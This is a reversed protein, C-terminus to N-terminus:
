SVRVETRLDRNAGFSMREDLIQMYLTTLWDIKRPWMYVNRVREHANIGMQIRLEHNKALLEIAEAIAASYQDPDNIPIRIGCDTMVVEAPGGRDAVICPLGYSMAEIVVNGSPERFSPFVFIDAQEYFRNVDQRAIKGHFQICDMLGLRKAENECHLRDPGDGVIDMRWKLDTPLQGLARIADRLGKTRIIRGVYLLNLPGSLKRRRVLSPLTAVGTESCIVFQKPHVDSLLDKVYPAVGIVVTAQQYTARLWPDHRFRWRDLQRLNVYWPDSETERKFADPTDLSGAVPGIIVPWQLGIAPCPYRLALPAIQHVIDFHMDSAAAHQIWRRARWYFRLYGPKAMANFRDFRGVLPLDTWEIVQVNSLQPIVSPRNRKRYTLLTVNHRESLGRVWQYTSWAEGVDTGDCTPGILLIRLHHSRV